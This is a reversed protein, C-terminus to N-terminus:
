TGVWSLFCGHQAYKIHEGISPHDWGRSLLPYIQPSTSARKRRFFPIKSSGLCYVTVSVCLSCCLTSRYVMQSVSLSLAATWRLFPSWVSRTRLLFVVFSVIVIWWALCKYSEYIYSPEKYQTYNTISVFALIGTACYNWKWCEGVCLWHHRRLRVKTGQQQRGEGHHDSNHLYVSGPEWRYFFGCSHLM